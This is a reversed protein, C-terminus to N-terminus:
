LEVEGDLWKNVESKVAEDTHAKMKKLDAPSLHEEVSYVDGSKRIVGSSELISISSEDLNVAKLIRNKKFELQFILLKLLRSLEFEGYFERETLDEVCTKLRELLHGFGPSNSGAHFFPLIGYFGAFCDGSEKMMLFVQGTDGPQLGMLYDEPREPFRGEVMGMIYGPMFDDAISVTNKIGFVADEVKMVEHKESRFDMCERYMALKFLGEVTTKRCDPFLQTVAHEISDSYNKLNVTKLSIKQDGTGALEFKRDLINFEVGLDDLVSELEAQDSIGTNFNIHKVSLPVVAYDKMSQESRTSVWASGSDIIEPLECVASLYTSLRTRTDM